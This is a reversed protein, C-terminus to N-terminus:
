AAAETLHPRQGIITASYPLRDGPCTDLGISDWHMAINGAVTARVKQWCVPCRHPLHAAAMM